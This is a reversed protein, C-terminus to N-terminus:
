RKKYKSLKNAKADMKLKKRKIFSASIMEDPELLMWQNAYQQSLPESDILLAGIGTVDNSGGIIMKGSNLYKRGVSLYLSPPTEACTRHRTAVIHDGNTVAFNLSSATNTSRRITRKYANNEHSKAPNKKKKIINNNNDNNNADKDDEDSTTEKNKNFDDYM